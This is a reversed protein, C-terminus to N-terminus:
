LRDSEVLDHARQRTTSPHKQLCEPRLASQRTTADPPPVSLNVKERETASRYRPAARAPRSTWVVTSSAPSRESSVPASVPRRRTCRKGIGNDSVALRWAGGARDYTVEIRGAARGDGFAHKLANIVLETVVLGMSVAETASVTGGDARWVISVPRNEGVISAALTECLRALYPALAIRGNDKTGLLQQQVTAVSMIRWHVNELHTRTEQSQVSRAKLLLISAIIQLSNAIQHQNAQLLIEMRELLKASGREAARRESVDEIALLFLRRARGEQFAECAHLLLTRRGSGPMDQEVELSDAVAIRARIRALMARVEPTDWRGGDVAGVPRGQVDKRDARLALCYAQNATVVRLERDLLLVPERLADVVAQAMGRGDDCDAFPQGNPWGFTINPHRGAISNPSEM